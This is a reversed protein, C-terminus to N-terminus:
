VPGRRASSGHACQPARRHLRASRRGHRRRFTRRRARCHHPLPRTRAGFLHAAHASV